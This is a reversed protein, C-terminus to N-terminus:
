TYKELKDEYKSEKLYQLTFDLLNSYTQILVDSSYKHLMEKVTYIEGINFNDESRNLSLIPQDFQNTEINSLENSYSPTKKDMNRFQMLNMSTNSKKGKIIPWKPPEKIYEGDIMMHSRDSSFYDLYDQGKVVKFRINHLLFLSQCANDSLKNLFQLANEFTEVGILEPINYLLNLLPFLITYEFWKDFNTDFFLSDYDWIKNELPNKIGANPEAEQLAVVHYDWLAIYCIEKLGSRQYYLSTIENKSSIFVSSIYKLDKLHNQCYIYINEECYSSKYIDDSFDENNLLKPFNSLSIREKLENINM